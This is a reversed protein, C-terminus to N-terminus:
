HKYTTGSLIYRVARSSINYKEGIQKQTIKTERYLRIIEGADRLSIKRQSSIHGPQFKIPSGPKIRGKNVGDLWNDKPSALFLHEINVCLRNDCTHCVYLGKPIEGFSLMWVMRHADITKKNYKFSGYGTKGRTGAQWIWCGIAKKVKKFFREETTM